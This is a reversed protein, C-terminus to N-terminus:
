TKETMVIVERDTDIQVSQCEIPNQLEIASLSVLLCNENNM